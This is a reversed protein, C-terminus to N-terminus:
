AAAGKALDNITQWLAEPLTVGNEASLARIRRGRDGPVAILEGPHASPSHRLEELYAGVM